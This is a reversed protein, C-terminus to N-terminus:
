RPDYAFYKRRLTIFKGQDLRHVRAASSVETWDCDGQEILKLLYVFVKEQKVEIARWWLRYAENRNLGSTLARQLFQQNM